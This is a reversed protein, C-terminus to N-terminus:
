NLFPAFFLSFPGFTLSHIRATSLEMEDLGCVSVARICCNCVSSAFRARYTKRAVWLVGEVQVFSLPQSSAREVAGLM